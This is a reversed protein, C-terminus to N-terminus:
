IKVNNNRFMKCKNIAATRYGDIVLNIHKYLVNRTVSPHIKFIQNQFIFIALKLFLILCYDIPNIALLEGYGGPSLLSKRAFKHGWKSENLYM